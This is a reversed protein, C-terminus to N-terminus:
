QAPCEAAEGMIIPAIGLHQDGSTITDSYPPDCASGDVAYTFTSQSANIEGDIVMSGPLGSLLLSWTRTETITTCELSYTRSYSVDATNDQRFQWTGPTSIQGLFPHDESFMGTWVGYIGECSYAHLKIAGNTDATASATSHYEVQSTGPAKPGIHPAVDSAISTAGTGLSGFMSGIRNAIAELGPMQVEARVTLAGQEVPGGGNHLDASESATEVSCSATNGSIVGSAPSTMSALADFGSVKIWDVSSGDASDLQPLEIAFLDACSEVAPPWEFGDGGNDLTLTFDGTTPSGPSKHMTGPPTVTVSWQSFLSQMDTLTGLVDAVKRVANAFPNHRLLSKVGDTAMQVFHGVVSSVLGVFISSHDPDLLDQVSDSVSEDLGDLFESVAGCPDSSVSVAMSIPSVSLTTTAYDQTAAVLPIMFEKMFFVITLSPFETELHDAPDINPLLARSQQAGYTDGNLIYSALLQSVTLLTGDELPIPETLSDLLAGTLGTGNSLELAMGRAQAYLMHTGPYPSSVAAPLSLDDAYVTIEAHELAKSVANINEVDFTSRMDAALTNIELTSVTNTDEEAPPISSGGSGSCSTTVVVLLMFFMSLLSQKFGRRGPQEM